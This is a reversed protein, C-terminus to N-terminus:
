ARLKLALGVVGLLFTLGVLVNYGFYLANHKNVYVVTTTINLFEGSDNLANEIIQQLSEDDKFQEKIDRHLFVFEADVNLSANTFNKRAMGREMLEDTIDWEAYVKDGNHVIVKFYDPVQERHDFDSKAAKSLLNEYWKLTGM